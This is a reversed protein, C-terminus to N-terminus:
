FQHPQWWSLLNSAARLALRVKEEDFIPPTVKPIVIRFSSSSNLEMCLIWDIDSESITQQFYHAENEM